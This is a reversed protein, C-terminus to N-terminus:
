NYNCVLFYKKFVNLIVVILTFFGYNLYFLSNWHAFSILNESFYLIVLCVSCNSVRNWFIKLRLAAHIVFIMQYFSSYCNECSYMGNEKDDQKEDAEAMLEDLDKKKKKKKKSKSFDMDLDFDDDVLTEDMQGPIELTQEEKVETPLAGELEEM